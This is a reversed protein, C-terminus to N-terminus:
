EWACLHNTTCCPTRDGYRAATSRVRRRRAAKGPQLIHMDRGFQGDLLQLFATIIQQRLILPANTEIPTFRRAEHRPQIVAGTGEGEGAGLCPVFVATCAIRWGEWLSDGEPLSACTSGIGCRMCSCGVRTTRPRYATPYMAHDAFQGPRVHPRQRRQSTVSSMPESLQM